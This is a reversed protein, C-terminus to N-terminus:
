VNFGTAARLVRQLEAFRVPKPLYFEVDLDCV